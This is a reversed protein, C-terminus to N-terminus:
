KIEYISGTALWPPSKKADVRFLPDVSFLPVVRFLTMAKFLTSQEVDLFPQLNISDSFLFCEVFVSSCACLQYLNFISTFNWSYDPETPWIVKRATIINARV